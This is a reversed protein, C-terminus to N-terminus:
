ANCFLLFLELHHELAIRDNKLNLSGRSIKLFRIYKMLLQLTAVCNKKGALKQRSEFRAIFLVTQVQVGHLCNSIVLM